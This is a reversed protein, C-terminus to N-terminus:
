GRPGAAARVMARMDELSVATESSLPARPPAKFAHGYVIEFSLQLRGDPGALSELAAHLHERWRPTRLGSWRVPSANGGLSRLEALLAQPSEWTLTLTEQDMVPDAFGAQVLMDGLDHMDVFEPTAAPWGLRRYLARLERLTDPGLCSFMVFGDAALLRQWRALLATPDAAAHLMMNAWLLQAAGPAPDDRRVETARAWRRASWWPAQAEARSRQALADNPEVVIRRAKPYAAALLAGSAGTHGWWELVTEPQLKVIGLRQTMRRAVEAHLWPPQAQRAMRRLAADVAAQDLARVAPQADASPRKLDPM